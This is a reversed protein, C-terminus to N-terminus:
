EAAPQGNKEWWDRWVQQRKRAAELQAQSQPPGAPFDLSEQPRDIAPPFKEGTIACLLPYAMHHALTLVGDCPRKDQVESTDMLREILMPVLRLKQQANLAGKAYPSQLSTYAWYAPRDLFLMRTADDAPAATALCNIAADINRPPDANLENLRRNTVEWFVAHLEGGFLGKGDPDPTVTVLHMSLPGNIAQLDTTQDRVVHHGEEVHNRTVKGIHAVVQDPRGITFNRHPNTGVGVWLILGNSRPIDARGQDTELPKLGGVILIHSGLPAPCRVIKVARVANRGVWPHDPYRDALKALYDRLLEEAATLLKDPDIFQSDLHIRQAVRLAKRLEERAAPTDPITVIQPSGLRALLLVKDGKGLRSYEKEVEITSLSPDGFFVESVAATQVVRTFYGNKRTVGDDLFECACALDAVSVFSAFDGSTGGRATVPNTTKEDVVTDKVPSEQSLANTSLISIACTTIACLM